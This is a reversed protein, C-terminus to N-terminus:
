LPLRAIFESGQGAGASRASVTGGHLEVLRRVVTLGIGLGGQTRELSSDGQVFLDFVHPLLDPAIGAGEDRVSVVADGGQRVATPWVRGARQSFKAANNLLNGVAQTLRTPDAELRVPEPPLSVVLEQGQADFAPQNAEVAIEIASALDVPEKRLEIRGRMIR